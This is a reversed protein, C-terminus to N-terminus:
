RSFGDLVGREIYNHALPFLINDERFLHLRLAEVLAKGQEVALDLVVLRSDAEPLRSSLGFLNFVVAALQAMRLHDDLMVSVCTFTERGKSHEGKQVLAKDLAPYLEREELQQHPIVENDFVRFFGGLGENIEKTVGRASIATLLGEFNELLSKFRDHEDMLKALFPSMEGRPVEEISPPAFGDPPDMPSSEGVVGKDTNRRIREDNDPTM